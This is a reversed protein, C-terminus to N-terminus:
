NLLFQEVSPAQHRVTHLRYDVRHRGRQRWGSVLRKALRVTFSRDFYKIEYPCRNLVSASASRCGGFKGKSNKFVAAMDYINREELYKIFARVYPKISLEIHLYPLNIARLADIVGPWAADWTTDIVM